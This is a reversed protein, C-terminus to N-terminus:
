LDEGILSALAAVAATAAAAEHADIAAEVLARAILQGRATDGPNAYWHYTGYGYITM